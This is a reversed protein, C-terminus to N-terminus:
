SSSKTFPHQHRAPLSNIERLVDLEFKDGFRYIEVFSQIKMFTFRDNMRCIHSHRRHAFGLSDPNSCFGYSTRNSVCATLLSHERVTYVARMERKAAPIYKCPTCELTRCMLVSEPRVEWWLSGNGFVCGASLVKM